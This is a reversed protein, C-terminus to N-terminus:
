GNTPQQGVTEKKILTIEVRKFDFSQEIRVIDVDEMESLEEALVESIIELFEKIKFSVKKEM